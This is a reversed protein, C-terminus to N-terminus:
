PSFPEHDSMLGFSVLQSTGVYRASFRPDFLSRNPTQEIAAALNRYERVLNLYEPTSAGHESRAMETRCKALLDDFMKFHLMAGRMPALAVPMALGHAVARFAQGRRWRLLPLKSVTPDAVRDKINQCLRVRVGGYIQRFPFLSAPSIRYPGRDFFPCHSLFPAGPVYGVSGFPQDSYMDLLLTFLGEARSHELQATLQKISQLESNPWVLIEDADALLIWRNECFRDLIANVWQMGFGSDGFSLKTSFLFVDPQQLLFEVTQDESGNDILIFHDFGISRYYTLFYPLRRMENRIVSVLVHADPAIDVPRNTLYYVNSTM